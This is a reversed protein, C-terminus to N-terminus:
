VREVAGTRIIGSPRGFLVLLLIVFAVVDAYRSSGYGAMAAESLGLLFGGLVAGPMSGLGGLMAAAFGKLGLLTGSDFSILTLPTLAVGAVAGLLGALGFSWATAGRYSVGFASATQADDAVARLMVGRRTYRFFLTLLIAAVAVIALNWLTQPNIAAGLTRIPTDGSFSPLGYTRRQTLITVAAKLAIAVGITAVTIGDATPHRSFRVGVLDTLLGAAVGAALAVLITLLLPPALLEHVLGATVGGVMVYEGQAFNVAGTGRHIIGFGLAVLAYVAGVSLGSLIIQLFHTM